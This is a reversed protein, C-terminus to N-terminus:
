QRQQTNSSISLAAGGRPFKLQLGVGYNSTIFHKGIFKHPKNCFIIHATGKGALEFVITSEVILKSAARRAGKSSPNLIYAVILKSIQAGESSSDFIL